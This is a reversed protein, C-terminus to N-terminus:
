QRGMDLQVLAFAARQRFERGIKELNGNLPVTYRGGETAASIAVTILRYSRRSAGMRVAIM